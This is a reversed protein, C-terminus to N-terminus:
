AQEVLPKVFNAMPEQTFLSVTADWRGVSAGTEGWPVVGPLKKGAV